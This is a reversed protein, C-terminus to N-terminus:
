PRDNARTILDGVHLMAATLGNVANVLAEVEHNNLRDPSLSAIAFLAEAKFDRPPAPFKPTEHRAAAVDALNNMVRVRGFKPERSEWDATHLEIQRSNEDWFARVEYTGEDYDPGVLVAGEIRGAEVRAPHLPEIGVKALEANIQKAIGQLRLIERGREEAVQAEHAEVAAALWGPLTAETTKGAEATTDTM